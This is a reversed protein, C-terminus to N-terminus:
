LFIPNDRLLDFALPGRDMRYSVRVALSRVVHCPPLQPSQYPALVEINNVRM